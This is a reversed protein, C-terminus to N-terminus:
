RYRELESLVRERGWIAVLKTLEPGHLQGTLGARVTQWLQKGKLGAVKSSQKCANKFEDGIADFETWKEAPIIELIECLSKLFIRAEDSSLLEKSEADLEPNPSLVDVVQQAAEKYTAATGRLTTLAYTLKAEDHQTLFEKPFQKYVRKVYEDDSI